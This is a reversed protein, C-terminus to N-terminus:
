GRSIGPSRDPVPPSRPWCWRRSPSRRVTSRPGWSRRGPASRGSDEDGALIDVTLGVDVEAVADVAGAQWGADVIDDRGVPDAGAGGRRGRALQRHDSLGEGTQSRDEIRDGDAAAGVGVRGVLDAAVGRTRHQGEPPRNRYEVVLGQGGLGGADTAGARDPGPVIHALAGQHGDIDAVVRRRRGRRAGNQRSRPIGVARDGDDLRRGHGHGQGQGQDDLGPPIGIGDLSPHGRGQSIRLRAQEAAVRQRDALRHEVALDLLRHQAYRSGDGDGGGGEGRVAGIIRPRQVIGAFAAVVRQVRRVDCM